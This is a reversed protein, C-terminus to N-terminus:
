TQITVAVDDGHLNFLRAANGTMGPALATKEADPAIALPDDGVLHQFFTRDGTYLGVMYGIGTGGSVMDLVGDGDLDGVDIM